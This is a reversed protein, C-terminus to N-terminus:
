IRQPKDFVNAIMVKEGFLRPFFQQGFHKRHNVFCKFFLIYQRDFVPHFRGHWGGFFFIHNSEPINRGLCQVVIRLLASLNICQGIQQILRTEAFHLLSQNFRAHPFTKRTNEVARGSGAFGFRHVLNGAQRAAVDKRHVDAFGFTHPKAFAFFTDLINKVAVM